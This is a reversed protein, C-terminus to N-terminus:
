QYVQVSEETHDYSAVACSGQCRQCDAKFRKKPINSAQKEIQAGARVKKVSLPKTHKPLEGSEIKKKDVLIVQNMKIKKAFSGM